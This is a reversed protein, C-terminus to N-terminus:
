MQIKNYHAPRFVPQSFNQDDMSIVEVHSDVMIKVKDAGTNETLSLIMAHLSDTHARDNADFISDSIYLSILDDSQQIDLIQVESPIASLLNSASRPGSILQEMATWVKDNTQDILRTIPVFYPQLDQTYNQFYLTVPMSRGLYVGEGREINIGMGRTLPENIPIGAVPMETLQRGNVWIKVQEITPFETLAWTVAELIKREDSADYNNFSPSFDVIALRESEVIDMGLVETGEPLLATFGTPLEHAYPGNEVMYQLVLKAVGMEEPAPVEMSVPVVYGLQDELFLSVNVTEEFEGDFLGVMQAFEEDSMGNSQQPPDIQPSEKKSCGAAILIVASLLVVWGIWKYRNM